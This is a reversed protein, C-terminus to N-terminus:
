AIAKQTEIGDLILQDLEAERRLTVGIFHAIKMMDDVSRLQLAKYEVVQFEMPANKAQEFVGSFIDFAEELDIKKDERIERRYVSM